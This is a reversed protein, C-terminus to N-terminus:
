NVYHNYLILATILTGICAALLMRDRERKTRIRSMLSNLGPVQRALSQLRGGIGELRHRQGELDGHTASAQALVRDAASHAGGVAEHESMLEHM